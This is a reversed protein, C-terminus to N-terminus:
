NCFTTNKNSLVISSSTLNSERNDVIAKIYPYEGYIHIQNKTYIKFNTISERISIVNNNMENLKISWGYAIKYLLCYNNLLNLLKNKEQQYYPNSADAKFTNLENMVETVANQEYPKELVAKAKQLVECTKKFAILNTSLTNLSGDNQVVRIMELTKEHAEIEKGSDYFRNGNILKSIDTKVLKTAQEKFGKFLALSEDKSKITKNLQTKSNNLKNIEETNSIKEKSWEEQKTLLSKYDKELETLREIEKNKDELDSELVESKDVEDNWRKKFPSNELKKLEKKLNEIKEDWSKIDATLETVKAVKQNYDVMKTNLEANTTKSGDASAKWADRDTVLTQNTVKLTDIRNDKQSISDTLISKEKELLDVRERLLKIYDETDTQSFGTVTIFLVFLAAIFFRLTKM